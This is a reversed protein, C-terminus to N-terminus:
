VPSPQYPRRVLVGALENIRGPNMPDTLVNLHSQDLIADTNDGVTEVTLEPNQYGDSTVLFMATVSGASIDFLMGSIECVEHVLYGMGPSVLEPPQGDIFAQKTAPDDISYFPDVANTYAGPSIANVRINHAQGETALGRTLGYM